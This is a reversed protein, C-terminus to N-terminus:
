RRRRHATPLHEGGWVGSLRNDRGFAGCELTIPCGACVARAHDWKQKPLPHWDEPDEGPRACAADSWAIGDSTGALLLTLPVILPRLGTTTM